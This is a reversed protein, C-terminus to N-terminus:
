DWNFLKVIIIKGEEVLREIESPKKAFPKIPRGKDNFLNGEIPIFVYCHNEAFTINGEWEREIRYTTNRVSVLSQSLLPKIRKSEFYSNLKIFPACDTYYYNM